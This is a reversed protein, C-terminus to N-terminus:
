LQRPPLQPFCQSQAACIKGYFFLRVAKNEAGIAIPVACAHALVARGIQCFFPQVIVFNQVM